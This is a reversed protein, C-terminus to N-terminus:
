RRGRKNAKAEALAEQKEKERAKEFIIGMMFGLTYCVIIVIIMFGVLWYNPESM